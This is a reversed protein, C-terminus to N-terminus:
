LERQAFERGIVVQVVASRREPEQLLVGRLSLDDGPQQINVLVCGVQVRRQAQGRAALERTFLDVVVCGEDASM